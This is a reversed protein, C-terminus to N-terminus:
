FAGLVNLGTGVQLQGDTKLVSGASRYLNTDTGFYIGGPAATTNTGVTLVGNAPASTGVGVKGDWGQFLGLNSAAIDQVQFAYGVQGPAQVTPIIRMYYNTNDPAYAVRFTGSVHLPDQPSSVAGAGIGVNGNGDIRM